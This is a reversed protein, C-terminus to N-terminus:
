ELILLYVGKIQSETKEGQSFSHNRNRERNTNLSIERKKKIRVILVINLQEDFAAKFISMRMLSSGM